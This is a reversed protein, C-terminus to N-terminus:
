NLFELLKLTRLAPLLQRGDACPTNKHQVTIGIQVPTPRAKHFSDLDEAMQKVWM